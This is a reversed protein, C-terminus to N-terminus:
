QWPNGWSLIEWLTYLFCSLFAMLAIGKLFQSYRFLRRHLGRRDHALTGSKNPQLM